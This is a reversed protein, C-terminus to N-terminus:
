SNIEETRIIRIHEIVERDFRDKGKLELITYGEPVLLKEKFAGEKDTFIQRGNLSLFSINAAQGEVPVIEESVTFGDKPTILTIRAGTLFERTEFFVYLALAAIFIVITGVKLTRISNQQSRM